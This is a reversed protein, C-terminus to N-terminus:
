LTGSALSGLREWSVVPFVNALIGLLPSLSDTSVMDLPYARGRTSPHPWGSIEINILITGTLLFHLSLFHLLSQHLPLGSVAGGLSGDWRYVGFGSM